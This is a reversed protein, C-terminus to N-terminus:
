ELQRIEFNGTGFLKIISENIRDKEFIPSCTILDLHIANYEPWTHIVLNSNALIYTLSFGNGKFKTIFTDVVKLKHTNCFAGCAKLLAKKSNLLNSPVQHIKIVVHDVYPFKEEKPNEFTYISSLRSTKPIKTFQTTKLIYLSSTSGISEAGHYRNFKDIKDEMLLNFQTLLEQIKITKEPTRFSNGYCLFIYGPNSPDLLEIARTLFLEIGTKTYPPDTMVVDFKGQFQTLLKNRADYKQVTINTYHQDQAIIKITNLIDDDIDLITTQIPPMKKLSTLMSISMSVFDDDGILALKSNYQLLGKDKLVLAKAVSTEPTAFFQDYDRKPLLNYKARIHKLQNSLEIDHYELLSWKYPTLQLKQLEKLFEPKLLIEDQTSKELYAAISDKFQKLTEKPLGTQRILDSNTIPINEIPINAAVGMQTKETTSPKTVTPTKQSIALLYLIGEIEPKRLSINKAQLQSILTTM